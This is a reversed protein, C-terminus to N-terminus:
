SALEIAIWWRRTEGPSLLGHTGRARARELEDDDGVGPELALNFYPATGAGSWRAYNQWLGVFPLQAPDFRMRLAERGDGALLAAEGRTVPVFRKGGEPRFGPAGPDPVVGIPTAFPVEIRMGPEIAFLAHLCYVFPLERADESTLTYELEVRPARPALRLLRELGYCRAPGGRVSLALESETARAVTWPRSWLEGHVAPFCEDIGGTDHRAVYSEGPRAPRRELFPNTWLWERGTLRDRLSTIKGGLEPM